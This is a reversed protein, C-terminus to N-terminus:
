KFKLNNCSVVCSLYPSSILDIEGVRIEVRSRKEIEWLAGDKDKNVRRHAKWTDGVITLSPDIIVTVCDQDYDICKAMAEFNDWTFVFDIINGNNDQRKLTVEKISSIEKNNRELFEITEEYLNIKM